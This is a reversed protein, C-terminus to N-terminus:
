KRATNSKSLKKVERHRLKIVQITLVTFFGVEYPLKQPNHSKVCIFCVITGPM